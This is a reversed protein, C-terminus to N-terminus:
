VKQQLLKCTISWQSKLSTMDADDSQQTDNHSKCPRLTPSKPCSFGHFSTSTMAWNVLCCCFSCSCRSGTLLLEYNVDSFIYTCSFAKNALLLCLLAPFFRLQQHQLQLYVIQHFTSPHPRHHNRFISSWMERRLKCPFACLCVLWFVVQNYFTKLM